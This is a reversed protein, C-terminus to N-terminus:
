LAVGYHKRWLEILFLRWCLFEKHKDIPSYMTNKFNFLKEVEEASYLSRAISDKSGLIDQLMKFNSKLVEPMPISFGRKKRQVIDKPLIKKAIEKLVYKENTKSFSFCRGQLKVQSPLSFVTEVVSKDLFPVRAEIGQAMSGHDVKMLFHNPLQRTLEFQSIARFIDKEKFNKMTRAVALYHKYNMQCPLMRSICYYFLFSRFISSVWSFPWQSLGFWSYGGFVEDAGEGVLLVKIGFERVKECILQITFMGGDLSTLDDLLPVLEPLKYNIESPDIFVEHHITGVYEAVRRAFPREDLAHEFGATFTLLPETKARQAIATIVSSDLGGSLLVGTPVDSVLQSQVANSLVENVREVADDISKVGMTQSPSLNWFRKITKRGQEFVLFTGPLLRMVDSYATKHPEYIYQFCVLQEVSDLDFKRQFVNEPLCHFVKSESSFYIGSENNIYVLPKVGLPDRCLILQKLSNNWIALAFIGELKLFVEEKWEEYGHVIVESDSKSKFVHGKKLLECRLDRYNYIEGNVVAYITKNENPIPQNGADSLDLISLRRHGLYVRNDIDSYIGSADPGRHRMRELMQQIVTTHNFSENTIFGAIGCM